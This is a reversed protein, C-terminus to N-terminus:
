GFRSSCRKIWQCIWEVGELRDLYADVVDGTEEPFEAKDMCSKLVESLHYDTSSGYYNAKHRLLAASALLCVRKLDPSLTLNDNKLVHLRGSLGEFVVEIGDPRNLIRLMLDRIDVESLTDLPYLWALNGFQRLPTDKFDLSRHLRYVGTDGLPVSVQLSVIFKRLVRKQVAEDLIKQALSEDREYTAKLIGNLVGGHRAQDGALELREILWEWLGQLDSCKSAVGKGFEFLYGNQVTFLEESLEALVHSEDAVVRGLHYARVVARGNAEQWGQNDDSNSVGDLALLEHGVGLVYARVEDALREPKLTEDLKELLKTGGTRRYDYHRIERVARWGELWPQQENLAM